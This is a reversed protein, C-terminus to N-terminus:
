QWVVVSCNVLLQRTDSAHVLGPVASLTRRAMQLSCVDCASGMMRRPAAGAGNACKQGRLAYNNTMVMKKRTMQQASEGWVCTDTHTDAHTQARTNTHTHLPSDEAGLQLPNHETDHFVQLSILHPEWWASGPRVEHDRQVNHGCIFM